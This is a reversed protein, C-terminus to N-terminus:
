RGHLFDRPPFVAFLSTVHEELEESLAWTARRVVALM